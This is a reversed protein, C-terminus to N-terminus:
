ITEDTTKLLCWERSNLLKLVRPLHSKDWVSIGYQRYWHLAIIPDVSAILEMGLKRSKRHDFGNRIRANDDLNKTVDAHYQWSMGDGDFRVSEVHTQHQDVPDLVIRV